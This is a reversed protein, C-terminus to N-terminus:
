NRSEVGGVRLDADFGYVEVEDVERPDDRIPVQFTSPRLHLRHPILAQGLANREEIARAGSKDERWRKERRAECKRGEKTPRLVSPTALSSFASLANIEPADSDAVEFDGVQFPDDLDRFHNGYHVLNTRTCRKAYKGHTQAKSTSVREQRRRCVQSIQTRESESGGMYSRLTRRAVRTNLATHYRSPPMRIEPTRKRERRGEGSGVFKDIWKVMVGATWDRGKGVAREGGNEGRDCLTQGCALFDM